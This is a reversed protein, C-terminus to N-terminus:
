QKIATIFGGGVDEPMDRGYTAALTELSHDSTQWGRSALWAAADEGLGGKFLGTFERMSPMDRTQDLLSSGPLVSNEFSIRSGPASRSGVNSLLDAAEAASLYVLLGEALWATPRDPSFGSHILQDTWEDRLDVALAIRECTAVADRDSLVQNKFALVDPLDLEFLRVGAPWPLRYARADLGAALAVVQRCGAAAASLLYDDYFRTRMVVHFEFIAGMAALRHAAKGREAPFPPPAAALFDAACPDDFLRDPRQSEKARMYAVGLATRSVGTLAM